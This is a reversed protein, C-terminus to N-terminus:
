RSEDLPTATLNVTFSLVIKPRGDSKTVLKPQRVVSYTVDLFQMHETQLIKSLVDYKSYAVKSFM